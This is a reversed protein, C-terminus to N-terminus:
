FGWNFRLVHTWDSAGRSIGRYIGYDWWAHETVALTAGAGMTGEWPAGSTSKAVSAEGYLGIIKLVHRSVSASAFWNSDYGDDNDNRVFDLEAMAAFHFGGVLQSQLPIILGGEVADNGVGGTNTPIKVYPMVAIATYTDASEYFRWKTRVYLDGMGSQRETLGAADFKQNIFFEAGVQLDWRSTLGTSLFTTAAGFATYNLGPERDISLSLADVELLFRGPAVTTPTETFQARGATAAALGLLLVGAHLLRFM